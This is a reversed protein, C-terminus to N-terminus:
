SEFKGGFEGGVKGVRLDIEVEFADAFFGESGGLGQGVDEAGEMGM